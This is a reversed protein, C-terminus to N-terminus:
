VPTPMVVGAPTAPAEAPQHKAGIHSKFVLASRFHPCDRAPANAKHPIHGPFSVIRFPLAAAAKIIDKEDLTYFLTEGGWPAKWDPNTYIITSFYNDTDRNDVHIYGECGFTHGNGYARLPEHGQLITKSLLDWVQYVSAHQPNTRLQELCSVRSNLDGGAFHRHWFSYKDKEANSKWGYAWNPQRMLAAVATQLEAPILGDHIQIREKLLEIVNSM